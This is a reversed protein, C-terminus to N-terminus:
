TSGYCDGKKIIDVIVPYLQEKNKRRFVRSLVLGGFILGAALGIFSALSSPFTFLLSILYGGGMGLLLALLLGGFLITLAQSYRDEPIQIKVEDGPMADLPNKVSLRGKNQKNGICLSRATCDHCGDFCNVEVEAINKRTTIVLGSDTM